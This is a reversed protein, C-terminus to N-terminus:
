MDTLFQSIIDKAEKSIVKINPFSLKNKHDMINETFVFLLLLLLLLLLLHSILM